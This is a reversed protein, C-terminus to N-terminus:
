QLTTVNTVSHEAISPGSPQVLAAAIKALQDTPVILKLVVENVHDQELKTPAFFVIRSVSGMHDIRGVGYVFAEVVQNGCDLMKVIDTM